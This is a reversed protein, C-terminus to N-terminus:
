RRVRKNIAQWPTLARGWFDLAIRGVSLNLQYHDQDTGSLTLVTVRRGHATWWNAMETIVREAGGASLSSIILLIHPNRVMSETIAGM